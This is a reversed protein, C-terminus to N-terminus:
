HSMIYLLKLMSYPLMLRTWRILSHIVM